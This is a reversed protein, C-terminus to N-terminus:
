FKPDLVGFINSIIFYIIVYCFKLKTIKLSVYLVYKATFVVFLNCNIVKIVKLSMELVSKGSYSEEIDVQSRLMQFVNNM